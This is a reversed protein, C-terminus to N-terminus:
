RDTFLRAGRKELGQPARSAACPLLPSLPAAPIIQILTVM